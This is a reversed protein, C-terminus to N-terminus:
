DILDYYIVHDLVQTLLKKLNLFIYNMNLEKMLKLVLKQERM